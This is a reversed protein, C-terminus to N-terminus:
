VRCSLRPGGPGRTQTLKQVTYAIQSNKDDRQQVPHGLVEASHLWFHVHCQLPFVAQFLLEWVPV